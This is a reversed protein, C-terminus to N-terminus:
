PIDYLSKFWSCTCKRYLEGGSKNASKVESVYRYLAALVSKSAVQFSNTTGRHDIDHCLAAVFYALAEM